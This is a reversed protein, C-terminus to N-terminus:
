SSETTSLNSVYQNHKPFVGPQQYETSTSSAFRHIHYVGVDEDENTLGVVKYFLGLRKHQRGKKKKAAATAVAAAAIAAPAVPQLPEKLTATTDRTNKKPAVVPIPQLNEKLSPPKKIEENKVVM